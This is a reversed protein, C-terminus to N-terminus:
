QNITTRIAAAQEQTAEAMKTFTSLFLEAIFAIGGSIWAAYQQYPTGQMAVMVVVGIGKIDREYTIWTAALKDFEYHLNKREEPKTKFYVKSYGYLNGVITFLPAAASTSFVYVVVVYVSQLEAPIIAPDVTRILSTIGTLVGAVLLLLALAQYARM